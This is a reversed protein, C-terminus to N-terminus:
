PTLNWNGDPINQMGLLPDIIQPGLSLKPAMQDHSKCLELRETFEQQAITSDLGKAALYKSKLLLTLLRDDYLFTDNDATFRSKYTTGDVALIWNKKVYEFAYTYGTGPTPFVTFLNGLIRFRYRPVSAINQGLLWAWTQSSAPGIGPWRSTRDWQTDNVLRDYDSPLAYTDVGTTTFTYDDLLIQWEWAKVLENGAANALALMQAVDQDQSSVVISPSPLSLEVMADQVLQLLTGSM